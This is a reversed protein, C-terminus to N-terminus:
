GNDVVKKGQKISLVQPYTKRGKNLFCDNCVKQKITGLYLLNCRVCIKETEESIVGSNICWDKALTM